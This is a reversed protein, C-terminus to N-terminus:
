MAPSMALYLAVATAIGCILLSTVVALWSAPYPQEMYASLRRVERNYNLTALGTVLAAAFVLGTGVWSSLGLSVHAAGGRAAALERLLLGFRAIVFGLGIMAVATRVYALLTREAALFHRSDV